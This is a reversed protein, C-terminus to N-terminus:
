QGSVRVQEIFGERGAHGDVAPRGEDRQRRPVGRRKRESSEKKKCGKERGGNEAATEKRRKRKPKEENM